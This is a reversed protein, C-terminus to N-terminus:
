RHNHIATKRIHDRKLMMRLLLLSDNPKKASLNAM